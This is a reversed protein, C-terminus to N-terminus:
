LNNLDTGIIVELKKYQAYYENMAKLYGDRARGRSEHQIMAPITKLIIKLDYWFSYNNVYEIDLQKREDASMKNAGGRKTVQWLGTLGAPSLFRKIWRDSTLLEAEYPPLPRNGVISMDGMLVNFLQPLEDISTNRIFRGVRTIRPDNAFKVFSNEQKQRREALFAQENIMGGDYLLLPDDALKVPEPKNIRVSEYQNHKMLENLRQDADKYMSRFKYFGFEKYGRGIRPAAYFVKGPSEIRILLAIL